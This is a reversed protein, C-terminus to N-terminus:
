CKARGHVIKIMSVKFLFIRFIYVKEWILFDKVVIGLNQFLSGATADGM